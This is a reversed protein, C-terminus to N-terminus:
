HRPLYLLPFLFVWVVDVFHWYLGAMEVVISQSPVKVRQSAVRAGAWGLLGIGVTLHVAHLVTATFYLNIFLSAAVARGLVPRVGEAFDQAYEFGKLGLFVLGLAAAAILWGTVHKRRGARAAAVALAVFLSSTLLVATNATGIWMKLRMAAQEAAGPHLLRDAFLLAIIAGFLMIESALFLYMGLFDAERQQDRRAFPEALTVGQSVGKHAADSM